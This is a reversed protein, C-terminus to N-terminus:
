KLKKANPPIGQAAELDGDYVPLPYDSLDILTVEGGATAAARAAVAILKKNLSGTRASGSFALIKPKTAHRNGQTSAHSSADTM